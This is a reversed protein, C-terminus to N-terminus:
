IIEISQSKKFTVAKKLLQMEEFSLNWIAFEKKTNEIKDLIFKVFNEQIEKVRQDTEKKFQHDTFTKTLFLYHEAPNPHGDSFNNKFLEAEKLLKNNYINNNWLQKFFSPQIDALDNEYLKCLEQHKDTQQTNISFSSGQDIQEAIDCMSLMHYQCQINQLLQRALHISAFDRVMYGLPDAWDKIFKEDFFNQTYINGPTVWGLKRWRDERCVNTWSVMVLDDKTINHKLHAQVLSNVIYQNGAGCKGYNYFPIDLDYAVIEPWTSWFYETFSCGFAFLRSVPRNILKM